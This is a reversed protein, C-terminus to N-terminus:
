EDSNPVRLARLLRPTRPPRPREVSGESRQRGGAEAERRFKKIADYSFSMFSPLIKLAVLRKLSIQEAEFVTGM